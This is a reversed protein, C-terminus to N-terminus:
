EKIGFAKGFFIGVSFPDPDTGEFEKKFRIGASLKGDSSEVFTIPVDLAFQDDWVDYTFKPAIGIRPVSPWGVLLAKGQFGFRWFKERAPPGINLTECTVHTEGPKPAPCVIQKKESEGIEYERGIETLVAAYLRSDGEDDLGGFLGAHGSVQFPWRTQEQKIRGFPQTMDVLAPDTSALHRFTFHRRGGEVNIGIDWVPHTSGWVANALAEYSDSNAYSGGEKAKLVWQRLNEGTCAAALQEPSVQPTSAWIAKRCAAELDAGKEAKGKWLGQEAAILANSRESRDRKHFFTRTFGLNAALDDLWGGKEGGKFISDAGDSRASFGFTWSNLYPAEVKNSSEEPIPYIYKGATSRALQLAVRSDESGLELSVGSVRRDIPRDLLFSGVRAAAQRALRAAVGRSAEQSSEAPTDKADKDPNLFKNPDEFIQAIPWGFAEKRAVTEPPTAEAEKVAPLKPPREMGLGALAVRASKAKAALAGAEAEAAEAAAREITARQELDRLAKDVEASVTEGAKARRRLEDLFQQTRTAAARKAKATALAAEAELEFARENSFLPDPKQAAGGGSQAGAGSSLAAAGCCVLIRVGVRMM